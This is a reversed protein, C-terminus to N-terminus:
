RGGAIQDLTGVVCEGLVNYFTGKMASVGAALVPLLATDIMGADSGNMRVTVTNLTKTPFVRVELPITM